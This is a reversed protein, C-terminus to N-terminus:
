KTLERVQQKTVESWHQNTFPLTTFLGNPALAGETVSCKRKTPYTEFFKQAAEIATPAHVATVGKAYARYSLVESM